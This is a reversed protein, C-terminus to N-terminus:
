EDEPEEGRGGNELLKYLEYRSKVGCKSYINEVHKKVTHYSIVLEDAIAKYTLGRYLLESVRSEIETLKALRVTGTGEQPKEEGQKSITIWHYRDIIGNSYTQDYTYVKFVYGKIVSMKVRKSANESDKSGLLFPLWDCKSSSNLQEEIGTGLIDELYDKALKNHGMVHMFDDTILYAREGSSMIENQINTVIQRQEYKKFNKYAEALFIYIDRFIGMEEDTFDGEEETKFFTVMIYANIGFALTLAYHARFNQEVFDVFPSNNYYKGEILDTARYLRPDVNFYTLHDRIADQYVRSRITDNDVFKAYPHDRGNKRIGDPTVWSLFDGMTNFYTIVVNSYGFNRK